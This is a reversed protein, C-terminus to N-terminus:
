GEQRAARLKAEIFREHTLVMANALGRITETEDRTVEGDAAAIAFLVDVLKGREDIDSVAAFEDALRFSDLDAPVQLLAVDVLFHAQDGDLQWHQQLMTLMTAQEDDTIQPTTRAVIAMMGGALSLKRIAAESLKPVIGGQELRRRIVYYVRNKVFDDLYVERDPAEAPATEPSGGGRFRRSLSRAGSTGGGDLAAKVEDIIRREEDSVRGDAAALNDLAELVMQRGRSTTIQSHLLQVLRTREAEDVPADIYIDVSAWQQASLDPIRTLLDRKMSNIEDHSLVGDAWATAVLVKALTLIAARDNPHM